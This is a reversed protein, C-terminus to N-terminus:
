ILSLSNEGTSGSWSKRQGYCIVLRVERHLERTNLKTLYEMWGMFYALKSAM